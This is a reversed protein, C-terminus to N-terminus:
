QKLENSWFGRKTWLSQHYKILVNVVIEKMKKDLDKSSILKDIKDKFSTEVKTLKDSNTKDSDKLKDLDPAVIDKVDQKKLHSEKDQTHKTIDKNLKNVETNIITKIQSIDSPTLVELLSLKSYFLQENMRNDEIEGESDEFYIENGDADFEGKTWYGYSDISYIFYGWQDYEYEYEYKVWYGDSNIQYKLKDKNDYEYKEWWGYSNEYYIKNGNNDYQHKYWFEGPKIDNVNIEKENQFYKDQFKKKPINLGENLEDSSIHTRIFNIIDPIPYFNPNLDYVGSYISFDAWEGDSENEFDYFMQQINISAKEYGEYDYRIYFFNNPTNSDLSVSIYEVTDELYESDFEPFNKIVEKIVFSGFDYLEDAETKAKQKPICLGENLEMNDNLIDVAKRYPEPYLKKLVPLISQKEGYLSKHELWRWIYSSTYDGSIFQIIEDTLWSNDNWNGGRYELKDREIQKDILEILRNILFDGLPEVKKPICLGM